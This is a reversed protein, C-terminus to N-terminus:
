GRRFVWRDASSAAEDFAYGEAAFLKLGAPAKLRGQLAYRVMLGRARKAHFSIVKYAGASWDQFVPTLIRAQIAGADIAKFYEASALNVLVPRGKGADAALLANLARTLIGYWFAYLDAGRSNGLRISMELRYPQILDLPRLLGYLGSLIRLRDQAFALDTEDLSAAGLGGYADGNFALVAQKANAPSFPTKWQHYRGANLTALQDSIGMLSALGDPGLPRLLKVLKGSEKLFDPQSHRVTGPPTTFDLTKAPSLLFIM